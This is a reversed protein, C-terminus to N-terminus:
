VIVRWDHGGIRIVDGDMIREFSPPVAPVMSSYYTGRARVKGLSEPDLVGHARFYEAARDGGTAGGQAGGESFLRATVYESLTMVLPANFRTCMWHALGVHDPHMHTVVVRLVPLGDLSS